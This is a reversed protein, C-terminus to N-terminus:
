CASRVRSAIRTIEVWNHEDRTYYRAVAEEELILAVHNLLRQLEITDEFGKFAAKIHKKKREDM